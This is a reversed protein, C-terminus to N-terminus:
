TFPPGSDCEITAIASKHRVINWIRLMVYSYSAPNIHLSCMSNVVHNEKWKLPLKM